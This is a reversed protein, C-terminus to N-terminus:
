AVTSTLHYILIKFWVSIFFIQSFDFKGSHVNCSVNDLLLKEEEEKKQDDLDQEFFNRRTM